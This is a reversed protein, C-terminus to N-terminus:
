SPLECRDRLGSDRADTDPVADLVAAPAPSASAIRQERLPVNSRAFHTVLSRLDHVELSPPNPLSRAFQGTFHVYPRYFRLQNGLWRETQSPKGDPMGIRLPPLGLIESAVDAAECITPGGVSTSHIIPNVPFDATELNLCDRIVADVPVVNMQATPRGDVRIPQLTMEPPLNNLRRLRALLGYFGSESGGTRWTTSPGVVISPRVIISQLGLSSSEAMVVHEAQCKSEEYANNFPGALSHLEEGVSGEAAGCSYATSIYVFRRAGIARATAMANRTGGVNDAMLESSHAKEFRLSAAFHWVTEINASALARLHEANLGFLPLRVDGTVATIAGLESAAVHAYAAASARQRLMLRQRASCADPARVLAVVRGGARHWWYLFHGGLFGTAGTMLVSRHRFADSAVLEDLSRWAKEKWTMKRATSTTM